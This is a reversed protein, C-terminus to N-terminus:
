LNIRWDLQKKDDSVTRAVPIGWAEFTLLMASMGELPGLAALAEVTQWFIDEVTSACQAGLVYACSPRRCNEMPIDEHENDHVWSQGRLRERTVETSQQDPTM